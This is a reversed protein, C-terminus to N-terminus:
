ARAGEAASGAPADVRAAPHPRSPPYFVDRVIPVRRIVAAAVLSFAIAFPVQAIPYFGSRHLTQTEVGLGLLAVASLVQFGLLHFILIMLSERGLYALPRRLAASRALQRAAELLLLTGAVGGAYFLPLLHFRRQAMDVRGNVAVVAALMAAALLAWGPALIPRGGEGRRARALLVGAFLFVLAVLALDAGWPLLVFRGIAYGLLAAGAVLGAERAPPGRGAARLVVWLAVEACFLAPLFWLVVNFVLWDGTGNAYAIGALPVWAPVDREAQAGFHRGAFFWLAYFVPACVLYPVVLRRFRSRVLAGLTEGPRPAKFTRGALVFFLPMHFAYLATEVSDAVTSHGLVVLVIGLGRAVDIWDIREAV